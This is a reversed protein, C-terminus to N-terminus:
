CVRFQGWFLVFVLLFYGWGPRACGAAVSNHLTLYQKGNLHVQTVCSVLAFFPQGLLLDYPMDDMVQVQLILEMDAVKVMLNQLLGMMQTRMKNAAEMIM